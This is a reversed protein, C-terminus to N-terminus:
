KYRSGKQRRKQPTQPLKLLKYLQYSFFIIGSCSIIILSIGTILLFYGNDALSSSELNKQIFGFDNSSKKEDIVVKWDNGSLKTQQQSQNDDASLTTKTLCLSVTPLIFLVSFLFRCFLKSLKLM